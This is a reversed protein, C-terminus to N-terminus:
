QKVPGLTGLNNNGWCILRGADTVACAGQSGVAVDVARGGGLDVFGGGDALDNLIPRAKRDTSPRRTAATSSIASEGNSAYATQGANAHHREIVERVR